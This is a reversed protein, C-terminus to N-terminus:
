IQNKNESLIKQVIKSFEDESIGIKRCRKKMIKLDKRIYSEKVENFCLFSQSIASTYDMIRPPEKLDDAFFGLLEYHPLSLIEMFIQFVYEDFEGLWAVTPAPSTGTYCGFISEPPTDGLTGGGFSTAYESRNEVEPYKSRTKQIWWKGNGNSWIVWNPKKEHIWMHFGYFLELSKKYIGNADETGAGRVEIKDKCNKETETELYKPKKKILKKVWNFM